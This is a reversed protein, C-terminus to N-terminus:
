IIEVTLIESLEAVNLLLTSGLKRTGAAVVVGKATKVNVTSKKRFQTVLVETTNAAVKLPLSSCTATVRSM